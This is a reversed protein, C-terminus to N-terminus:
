GRGRWYFWSMSSISPSSNNYPRDVEATKCDRGHLHPDDAQWGQILIFAVSMAVVVALFIDWRKLETSSKNRFLLKAVITAGRMGVPNHELTLEQLTVTTCLASALQCAGASDNYCHRLNLNIRTNNTRLASALSITNQSSFHSGRM